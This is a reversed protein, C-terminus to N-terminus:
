TEDLSDVARISSAVPVQVLQALEVQRGDLCQRQRDIGLVLDGATVDAPHLQVRHRQRTLEADFVVPLDLRDLRGRQEVIEAIQGHGLVDQVLRALEGRDLEVLHLRVRRDAGVDERGDVEGIRDLRNDAIVM